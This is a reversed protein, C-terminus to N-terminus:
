LTPGMAFMVLKPEIMLAETVGWQGGEGSGPRVVTWLTTGPASGKEEPPHPPSHIRQATLVCDQGM